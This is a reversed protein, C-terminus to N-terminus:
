TKKDVRRRLIEALRKKAQAQLEDDPASEALPRVLIEADAWREEGMAADVQELVQFVGARTRLGTLKLRTESPM